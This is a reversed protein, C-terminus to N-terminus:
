KLIERKFNKRKTKEKKLGEKCGKLDFSFDPYEKQIKKELYIWVFKELSTM